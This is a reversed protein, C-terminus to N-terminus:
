VHTRTNNSSMIIVNKSKNVPSKLANLLKYYLFKDVDLLAVEMAEAETTEM